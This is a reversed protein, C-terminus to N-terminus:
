HAARDTPNRKKDYESRKNKDIDMLMTQDQKPPPFLDIDALAVTEGVINIKFESPWFVKYVHLMQWQLSPITIRM